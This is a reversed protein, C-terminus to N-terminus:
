KKNLVRKKIEYIGVGLIAVVLLAISVYLFIVSGTIFSLVIEAESRDDETSVNNGAVSDMDPTGQENYSEYIEAVNTLTKGINEETIQISLVLTIEKSEGPEIRENALSANYVNGTTDSMYWDPNLESNFRAFEPLYDIIKRAYGPIRGENTVVIKYEIVASSENTDRDLIDIRQLKSRDFERVQTGLAPATLTIKSIYKDLRLDFKEAIYLGIDINRVNNSAVTIIDTVGAEKQEGNLTITMAVADSNETEDVNAQQYSTVNYLGADYVFVIIYQGNSVNSFSYRGDSSTTTIQQAGTSSNTAVSNDAQNLLIVQVGALLEEDEDRRGDKNSDIWARGTIRNQQEIPPNPNDPNNPDDPNEIHEQPNYEIYATVPNLSFEDVQSTQVTANNVIEKGDEAESDLHAIVTLEINITAGTDIRDIELTVVNNEYSLDMTPYLTKDEYKVGANARVYEVGEPLTDKFIFNYHIGTGGTKLQFRYIFEEGEKVYEEDLKLQEGTLTSKGVYIYREESYHVGTDQDGELEYTGSAYVQTSFKEETDMGISFTVKLKSDGMPVSALTATIEKNGIEIGDTNQGNETEWYAKVNSIDSPLPVTVKLNKMGEIPNNVTIDYEINTGVSYIVSEITNTINSITFLGERYALTLEESNAKYAMNEATATFSIKGEPTEYISATNNLKLEISQSVSKGTAIDGLTITNGEIPQYGFTSDDFQLLDIENPKNITLVANKADVKGTNQVTIWVRVHSNQRIINAGNEQKANTTYSIKLDPGQGTTLGIISSVKTENITAEESNNTYFVKYMEYVSNDYELDAPLTAKYNFEVRAGAEMNSSLVIMYSKVNQWNSPSTTWGNSQLELNNSADINESYYVTAGETGTVNIAGKLPVDITSGLAEGTDINKNDKAPLRGLVVVNSISNTYNNVITGGITLERTPGHVDITAEQKEDSVNLLTSGEDDFGTMTNAATVGAPAVFTVPTSTEGLTEDENTISNEYLNSNENYYHMQINETKNSTFRDLAIDAKIVINAGETINNNKETLSNYKTQTGELTIRIVLRGNEKVVESSKINLEDDFLLNVSDLKISTVEEPMIIEIIPNKYLAYEESSTNLVARIEVDENTLVASLNEPELIIQAATIPEKLTTQTEENITMLNTSATLATRISAFNQMQEKSYDINGKLAKIVEIELQGETIPSSTTIILKNNDAESIDLTYMGNEIPTEKNIIGIEKGTEDKLTITGEEGLIKNFVAQNIQVKKNYAYNNNSITTSGTKDDSTVFQDYNQNFEITTTLKASSITAIYKTYYETELKEAADYNAYVNGKNIEKPAVIEFDSIEGLKDDKSYELNLSAENSIVTSEANYLDLESNAAVTATIGNEKAYDYIEKNEFLYTVLYEDVSDKKWSVNDGMNEITITIIGNEADYSYNNNTFDLGNSKGNTAETKLAVVTVSSPKVNNITPVQVQLKTTRIPLSGDKVASTIKTQVMLGMDQNNQYPIYKSEELKLESEATGKWSLKNLIEKEVKSEKGNINVYTGELMTTFEKQFYDSTISDKKLLEIPIEITVDSGNDIKNLTIKNNDADISQINENQIDAKIKFNANNFTISADKLYGADKVKVNLYIKSDESQIEYTQIHVGGNLYANFEINRNNTSTRQENLEEDSVAKAITYEGLVIFNASTLVLVLLVAIIKELLKSM